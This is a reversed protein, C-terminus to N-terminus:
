HFRKPYIRHESFSPHPSLRPHHAAIIFANRSFIFNARHEDRSPVLDGTKPRASCGRDLTVATEYEEGQCIPALRARPMSAM